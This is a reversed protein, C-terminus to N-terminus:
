HTQLADVEEAIVEDNATTAIPAFHLRRKSRRVTSTFFANHFSLTRNRDQPGLIGVVPYRTMTRAVNVVNATSHATDARTSSNSQQVEWLAEGDAQEELSTALQALELRFRIWTTRSQQYQQIYQPDSVEGWPGDIRDWPETVLRLAKLYTIVICTRCHECDDSTSLHLPHGCTTAVQRGDADAPDFSRRDEDICFNVYEAAFEIRGLDNDVEGCQVQWGVHAGTFDDDGFVTVPLAKSIPM